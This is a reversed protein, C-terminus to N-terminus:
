LAVAHAVCLDQKLANPLSDDLAARSLTSSVCIEQQQMDGEEEEEEKEANSSRAM